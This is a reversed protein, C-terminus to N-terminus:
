DGEKKNWNKIIPNFYEADLKVFLNPNDSLYQKVRNAYHKSVDPFMECAITIHPHYDDWSHQLGHRNWYRHRALLDDSKLKLVVCDEDKGFVDVGVVQAMVENGDLVGTASQQEKAYMVTVHYDDPALRKESPIKVADIIESIADGSGKIKRGIYTGPFIGLSELLLTKLRM